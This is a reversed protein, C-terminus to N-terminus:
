GFDPYIVKEKYTAYVSVAPDNPFLEVDIRLTQSRDGVQYALLTRESDIWVNSVFVLPLQIKKICASTIAPFNSVVRNEIVVGTASVLDVSSVGCLRGDDGLIFAHLKDPSAAGERLLALFGGDSDTGASRVSGQYHLRDGLSLLDDQFLLEPYDLLLLSQAGGQEFKSFGQRWAKHILGNEPLSIYFSDRLNPKIQFEQLQARINADYKAATHYQALISRLAVAEFLILLSVAFIALRTRWGGLTLLHASLLALGLSSLYTFRPAVFGQGIAVPASVLPAVFLLYIALFLMTNRGRSIPSANINESVKNGRYIYIFIGVCIVVLLLTGNFISSTGDLARFEMLSKWNGLVMDWHRPGLLSDLALSFVRPMAEIYDGLSLRGSRTWIPVAVSALVFIHGAVIGIPMLSWVFDTRSLVGKRQFYLSYLPIILALPVLVEYIHMSIWLLGSCLIMKVSWRLKESTIILLGCLCLAIVFHYMGGSLVPIIEYKGSYVLFFLSALLAAEKRYFRNLLIFCLFGNVLWALFFVAQMLIVSEFCLRYLAILSITLFHRASAIDIYSNASIFLADVLPKAIIFIDDGELGYDFYFDFILSCWVVVILRPYTWMHRLNFTSLSDKMSKKRCLFGAAQVM